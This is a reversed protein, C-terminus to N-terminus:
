LTTSVRRPSLILRQQAQLAVDGKIMFKLMLKRPRFDHSETYFLFENNRKNHRHESSSNKYTRNALPNGTIENFLVHF